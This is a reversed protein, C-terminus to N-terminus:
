PKTEESKESEGNEAQTLASASADAAGDPAAPRITITEVPKGDKARVVASYVGNSALSVLIANLPAIAAAAATMNGSFLTALYLIVVAIIYSLWQTPLKVFLNKLFQTVIATAAACGAFSGLMEWSFFEDM